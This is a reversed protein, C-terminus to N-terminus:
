WHVFFRVGYTRPPEGVSGTGPSTPTNGLSLSGYVFSNEVNDVYAEMRWNGRPPSYTMTLDTITYAGQHVSPLNYYLGYHGSEYHTQVRGLLTGSDGLSVLHQLGATVNGVPAMAMQNGSYDYGLGSFENYHASQVTIGADIETDLPLLAKINLEDGYITSRKANLVSTLATATVFQVAQFDKYNYYFAESNVQLRDDLFRSKLGASYALLKSEPVINSTGQPTPVPNYGFEIYSTQVNAYLLIRSTLDYDV